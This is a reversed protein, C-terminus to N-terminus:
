SGCRRSARCLASTREGDLEGFRRWAALFTESVVDHVAESPVRRAAYRVVAEYCDAFIREFGGTTASV